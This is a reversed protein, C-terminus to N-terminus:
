SGAVGSARDWYGVDDGIRVGVEVEFTAVGLPQDGPTVTVELVGPDVWMATVTAGEGRGDPHRVPGTNPEGPGFFGLDTAWVTGDPEIGRLIVSIWEVAGSEVLDSGEGAMTIRFRHSDLTSTHSVRVIDTGPEGQGPGAPESDFTEQDGEPDEGPPLAAATTTPATAPADTPASGVRCNVDASLEVVVEVPDQPPILGAFVEFGPPFTDSPRMSYRLDFGIGAVVVGDSEETCVFLGSDIPRNVD